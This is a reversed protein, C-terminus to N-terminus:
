TETMPQKTYLAAHQVTKSLLLGSLSCSLVLDLQSVRTSRPFPGLRQVSCNWLFSFVVWDPNPNDSPSSLLPALPQLYRQM